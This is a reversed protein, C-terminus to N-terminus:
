TGNKKSDNAAYQLTAQIHNSTSEALGLIKKAEKLEPPIEIRPKALDDILNRIQGITENDLLPLTQAAEFIEDKYHKYKM